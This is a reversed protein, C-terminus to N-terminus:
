EDGKQTKKNMITEGSIAYMAVFIVDILFFGIYMQASFDGFIVFWVMMVAGIRNILVNEILFLSGTYKQAFSGIALRVFLALFIEVMKTEM